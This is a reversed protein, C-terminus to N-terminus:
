KDVSCNCGEGALTIEVHIVKSLKLSLGMPLAGPRLSGFFFFDDDPGFIILQQEDVQVGRPQSWRYIWTVSQIMGKM